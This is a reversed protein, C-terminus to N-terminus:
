ENGYKEDAKKQAEDQAKETESPDPLLEEAKKNKGVLRMLLDLLAAVIALIVQWM